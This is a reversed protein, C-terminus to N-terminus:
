AAKVAVGFVGVATRPRASSPGSSRIGGARLDSFGTTRRRHRGGAHGGGAPMVSAVQEMEFLTNKATHLSDHIFLDVRGCRAILPRCGSGARDRWTRGAHAARTPSRRARRGTCGTTAPSAAPRHEVPPGHDNRSSHRSFSGAAHRRPGRRDRGGRGPQKHLATCWIARGLANEADSYWGYTHRGTRSDREGGAPRQYRDDPRRARDGEPCPWPAGLLEHLDSRGPRTRSRRRPGTPRIGNGGSGSNGPCPGPRGHGPRGRLGCCGCSRSDM